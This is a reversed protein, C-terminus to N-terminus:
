GKKVHHACAACGGSCGACSGCCGSKGKGPLINRVSVAVLLLVVGGAVINPINSSIWQLIM